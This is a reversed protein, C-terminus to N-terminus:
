YIMIMMYSDFFGTLYPTGCPETRPGINNKIYILSRSDHISCPFGVNEALSVLIKIAPFLTLLTWLLAFSVIFLSESHNSLFLSIM